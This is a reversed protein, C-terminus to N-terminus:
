NYNPNSLTLTRLPDDFVIAIECTGAVARVWRVHGGAYAPKVEASPDMFRVGCPHGEADESVWGAILVRVGSRSIDTTVGAGPELGRIAVPLRYRLRPYGRRDHDERTLGDKNWVLQTVTEGPLRLCELEGILGASGFGHRRRFTVPDQTLAGLLFKRVTDGDDPEFIERADLFAPTFFIDFEHGDPALLLVRWGEREYRQITENTTVRWSGVM